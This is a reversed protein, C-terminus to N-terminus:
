PQFFIPAFVKRNARMYQMQIYLTIIRKLALQIEYCSNMMQLLKARIGANCLNVSKQEWFETIFFNLLHHVHPNHFDTLKKITEVKTHAAQCSLRDGTEYRGEMHSKGLM